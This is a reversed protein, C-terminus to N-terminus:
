VRQFADPSAFLNAFPVLLVCTVTYGDAQHWSLFIISFSFHSENILIDCSPLVSNKCIDQRVFYGSANSFIFHSKHSSNEILGSPNASDVLGDKFAQNVCWFLVFDSYHM